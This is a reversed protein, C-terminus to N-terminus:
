KRGQEYWQKVLKQDIDKRKSFQEYTKKRGNVGANGDLMKFIRSQVQSPKNHRQNIQAKQVDKKTPHKKGTIKQMQKLETANQKAKTASINAQKKSAISAKQQQGQKQIKMGASKSGMSRRDWQSRTNTGGGSVYDQYAKTDQKAFDKARAANQTHYPDVYKDDYITRGGISRNGDADVGDAKIRNTKGDYEYTTGHEDKWDDGPKINNKSASSATGGFGLAAVLFGALQQGYMVVILLGMILVFLFIYTKLSMTQKNKPEDITLTVM